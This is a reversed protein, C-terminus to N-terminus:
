TLARYALVGILALAAIWVVVIVVAVVLMLRRGFRLSEDSRLEERTAEPVMRLAASIGLPVILADDIIGALPLADPILDVPSLAYIVVAVLTLWSRRPVDPHRLAAIGM